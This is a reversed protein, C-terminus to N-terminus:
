PGIKGPEVVDAKAPPSPEKAERDTEPSVIDKLPEKAETKDPQSEKAKGEAELLAKKEAGLVETNLDSGAQFVLPTVNYTASKSLLLNKKLHEAFARIYLPSSPLQGLADVIELAFNRITRANDPQPGALERYTDNYISALWWLAYPLAASKPYTSCYNQWSELLSQKDGEMSLGLWAKQSPSALPPDMSDILAKHDLGYDFITFDQDAVVPESVFENKPSLAYFNQYRYFAKPDLVGDAPMPSAFIYLFDPKHSVHSLSILIKSDEHLGPFNKKRFDTLLNRVENTQLNWYYLGDHYRTSGQATFILEAGSPLWLFEEIADHVSSMVFEPESLSQILLRKVGGRFRSHLTAFLPGSPAKLGDLALGQYFNMRSDQALAVQVGRPPIPIKHTFTEDPSLLLTNEAGDRGFSKVIFATETLTQYFFRNGFNDYLEPRNGQLKGYARLEALSEPLRNQDKQFHLISHGLFHVSASNSTWPHGTINTFATTLFWLWPMLLLLTRLRM